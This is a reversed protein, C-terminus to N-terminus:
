TTKQPIKLNQLAKPHLKKVVHYYNYNLELAIEEWKKLNIYRMQLLLKYTPNKVYEIATEIEGKLSLLRLIEKNIENNLDIIKAIIEATKDEVVQGKAKPMDSLVSTTKRAESLWKILQERKLEIENELTKYRNLWQKKEKIDIVVVGKKM